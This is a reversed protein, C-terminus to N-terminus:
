FLSECRGGLYAKVGVGLYPRVDMRLYAGLRGEFM